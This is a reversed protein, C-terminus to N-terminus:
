ATSLADNFVTDNTRNDVDALVITDTPALTIRHRYVQYRWVGLAVVALLAGAALVRWRGRTPHAEATMEGPMIRPASELSEIAPMLRYGRRGLTEIYRPTDASDGLSRRLAKITSISSRIM